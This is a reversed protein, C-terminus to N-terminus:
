SDLLDKLISYEAAKRAISLPYARSSSPLRYLSIEKVNENSCSHRGDCLTLNVHGGTHPAQCGLQAAAIGSAKEGTTIVARCEPLADLLGKIDVPTVIELFKDSANDKLRRVEYATDYLALGSSSCFRIIREKDFRRGTIFHDKDGFFVLGIIRWFDNNFNPYFFDMSWREKKPPFSGLMLVKAGDPIFPLWPHKEVPAEM